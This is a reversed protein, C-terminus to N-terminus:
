SKMTSATKLISKLRNKGLDRISNIAEQITKYDGSGNQAVTIQTPYAVKQAAVNFAIIFLFLITQLAKAKM